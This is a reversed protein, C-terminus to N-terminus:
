CIGHIEKFFLDCTLVGEGIWTAVVGLQHAAGERRQM